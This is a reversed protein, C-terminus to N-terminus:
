GSRPSCSSATCSSTRGGPRALAAARPRRLRAGAGGPPGARRRRSRVPPRRDARRRRHRRRDATREAASRDRTRGAGRATPVTPPTPTRRRIRCPARCADCDASDVPASFRGRIAATVCGSTPVRRRSTVRYSGDPRRGSGVPGDRVIHSEFVVPRRSRPRVPPKLGGARCSPWRAAPGAAPRRRSRGSRRGAAPARQPDAVVAEVARQATQGGRPSGPRPRRRWRRRDGRRDAVPARRDVVPGM